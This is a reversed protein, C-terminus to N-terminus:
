PAPISVLTPFWARLVEAAPKGNVSVSKDQLAAPPYYGRSVLGSIWSRGNVAGLIAAYADAQEQLDLQIAPNDPNSPTLAGMSLCGGQGDPLCGTIGGDASPYAIALIFPKNILYYIPLAVNDLLFAASMDM